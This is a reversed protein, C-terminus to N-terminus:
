QKLKPTIAVGKTSDVVIYEVGDIKVSFITSHQGLYISYKAVIQKEVDKDNETEFYTASCGTFSLAIVTIISLKKIINM